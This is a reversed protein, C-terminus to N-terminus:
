MKTRPHARRYIKGLEADEIETYIQTSSLSSHGLLEQITRLDGGFALLHTAFSHRFAHPTVKDPLGLQRRCFAVLLQVQRASLRGGKPGRFLPDERRFAFPAINTYFGIADTILPLVPVDRQKKGKGTIRLSMQGTEPKEGYSLSLAESIRLGCGYILLLVARNRANEWQKGSKEGALKIIHLADQQSVPRPLSRATKPPKVAEFAPSVDYGNESLFRAFSRLGSMSRALSRSQANEKERRKALFSRLDMATLSAFQELTTDHEYHRSLFDIFQRLDRGYADVTHASLKRQRALMELWDGMLAQIDKQTAM